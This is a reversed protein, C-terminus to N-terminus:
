KDDFMGKAWRYTTESSKGAGVRVTATQEKPAAWAWRAIIATEPDIEKRLVQWSPLWCIMEYTGTPVQEFTFRGEGDSRAYYPHEAVFLHAHLWFYGAACSLEVVGAQTLKREHTRKTEILPLAFFAAGRAHLNHYETDRNVIEISSGRRVFGVPTRQNGQEVLLQRDHFAIRAPPQDWAKSRRPDINRLYVVANAVGQKYPQVKPLHPTVFHAPKRHMHPNFANTRVVFEEALPIEGDWVVQGRITGTAAPDFSEALTEAPEEKEDRPPQPLDSCSSLLALFAFGIISIRGHM